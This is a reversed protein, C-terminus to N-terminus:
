VTEPTSRNLVKGDEHALVHSVVTMTLPCSRPIREVIHPGSISSLDNPKTALAKVLQAVQGM